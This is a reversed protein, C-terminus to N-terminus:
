TKAKFVVGNYANFQDYRPLIISYYKNDGLFLGVWSFEGVSNTTTYEISYNEPINTPDDGHILIGLTQDVYPCTGRITKISSTGTIRVSFGKLDYSSGLYLDFKRNVKTNVLSQPAIILLLQKDPLIINSIGVVHSGPYLEEENIKLRETSSALRVNEITPVIPYKNGGVPLIPLEGPLSYTETMSFVDLKYRDVSNLAPGVLVASFKNESREIKNVILKVPKSDKVYLPIPSKNLNAQDVIIAPLATATTINRPERIRLDADTGLKALPPRVIAKKSSIGIIKGTKDRAVAVVTVPGLDFNYSAISYSLSIPSIHTSLVKDTYDLLITRGQSDIVWLQLTADIELGSPPKFYASAFISEGKPVDDVPIELYVTNGPLLNSASVKELTLKKSIGSKAKEKYDYKSIYGDDIGENSQLSARDLKSDRSVTGPVSSAQQSTADTRGRTSQFGRPDLVPREPGRNPPAGGGPSVLDNPLSTASPKVIRIPTQTDIISQTVEYTRPRTISLDPRDAESIIDPVEPNLPQTTTSIDAPDVPNGPDQTTSGDANITISVVSIDAPIVPDGPDQYAPDGPYTLDGNIVPLTVIGGPILLSGTNPDQALSGGSDIPLTPDAQAEGPEQQGIGGQYPDQPLGLGPLTPKVLVGGLPRPPLTIPNRERPDPIAPGIGQPFKIATPNRGGTTPREPPPVRPGTTPTRGGPGQGGAPNDPPPPPKPGVTPFRGGPGRPGSPGDLPLPKPLAAPVPPSRPPPPPRPRDPPKRVEPDESPIFATIIPPLTNYTPPEIPTRIPPDIIVDGPGRTFIALQVFYSKNNNFNEPNVGRISSYNWAFTGQFLEGAGVTVPFNTHKPNSTDATLTIWFDSLLDKYGCYAEYQRWTGATTINYNILLTNLQPIHEIDTINIADPM